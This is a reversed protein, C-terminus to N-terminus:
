HPLIRTLLLAAVYLGVGYVLHTILSQLRAATPNPLRAGAVGAGMAPQMLFLPAVLTALGVLMAPGLTPRILWEPGMVAVLLLAFTIGIMYHACWGIFHEFPLSPSQRINVHRFRRRPMYAFWRGILRYDARPFGALPQRAVGWVDMVGTALVGVAVSRIWHDM